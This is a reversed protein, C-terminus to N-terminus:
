LQLGWGWGFFLGLFCCCCCCCVVVVIFLFSRGRGLGSFFSFKVLCYRSALVASRLVDLVLLRDCLPIHKQHNCICYPIYHLLVSLTPRFGFNATDLVNIHANQVGFVFLCVFFLWGVVVVVVAGFIYCVLRFIIFILLLLM